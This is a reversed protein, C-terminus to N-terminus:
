DGSCGKLGYAATLKDVKAFAPPGQEKLLVQPNQKPQNVAQQATDLIAEIKAEDGSPAGLARIGDIKFQNGPISHQKLFQVQQANTPNPNKKFFKDGAANDKKDGKACVADARKIFQKELHREDDHRRGWWLRRRHRWRGTRLCHFRQTGQEHHGKKVKPLAL